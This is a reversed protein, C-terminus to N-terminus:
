RAARKIFTDEYLKTWADQKDIAEAPDIFRIPMDGFPTPVKSNSPVFNRAALLPQGENLFFDFLLAAAFPHSGRAMVAVAHLQAVAPQLVFWDINGGKAKLQAPKYNYVTLALPIEGTAVLQALLTHGKRVSVGNTAVM